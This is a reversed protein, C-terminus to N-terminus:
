SVEPLHVERRLIQTNRPSSACAAKRGGGAHCLMRLAAPAVFDKAVVDPSDEVAQHVEQLVRQVPQLGDIVQLLALFIFSGPISDRIRVDGKIM